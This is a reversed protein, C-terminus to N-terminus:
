ERLQFRAVAEKDFTRLVLWMEAHHDTPTWDADVVCISITTGRVSFTYTKVSTAGNTGPDGEKLVVHDNGDAYVSVVYSTM